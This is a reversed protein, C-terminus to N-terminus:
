SCGILFLSFLEVPEARPVFVLKVAVRIYGAAVFRLWRLILQARLLLERTESRELCLRHKKIM